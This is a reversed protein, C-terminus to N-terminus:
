SRIPLPATVAILVQPQQSVEADRQIETKTALPAPLAATAATQRWGRSIICRCEVGLCRFRARAIVCAARRAAMNGM